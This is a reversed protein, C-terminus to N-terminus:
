LLRPGCCPSGEVGAITLRDHIGAGDLRPGKPPPSDCHPANLLISSRPPCSTVPLILNLVANTSSQFPGKEDDGYPHFPPPFSRLAEVPPIPSLSSSSSPFPFPLPPSLSPLPITQRQFLVLDLFPPNSPPTSTPLLVAAPFPSAALVNESLPVPLQRRLLMGTWWVVAM